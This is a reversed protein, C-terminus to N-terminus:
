GQLLKLVSQQDVNAQALVATAAQQIIQTRSLESAAKAYDTDLIRSRSASTNLSVNSLNDGAYTLRNISAGMMARESNVSQIAVDIFGIANNANTNTTISAGALNASFIGGTPATADTTTGNSYVIVEAATADADASTKYAIGSAAAGTVDTITIVEGQASVQMHELGATARLNNQIAAALNSVEASTPNASLSVGHAFNVSVTGFTGVFKAFDTGATIASLDLTTVSSTPTNTGVTFTFDKFNVDITQNANPGVQLQITQENGAVTGFNNNGDLINMGNWQTTAGVRNIEAKLQQFELDLATRDTSSNTDNAAQIALERMRQLMNTVEVLAGEASQMLSIGDNANRIAQDLGRIQSTMRSSIALGAADDAASNIRKGSSLQHMATQLDRSNRELATQSVLSKINTNIVTM